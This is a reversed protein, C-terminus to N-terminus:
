PCLDEQGWPYCPPVFTFMGSPVGMSYYPLWPGFGGGGFGWGGVGGGIGIGGGGIGGGYARGSVHHALSGSGHHGSHQGMAEPLMMATALVGTGLLRRLMGV